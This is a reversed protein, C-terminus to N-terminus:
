RLGRGELSLFILTTIKGLRGRDLGAGRKKRVGETRKRRSLLFKNIYNKEL